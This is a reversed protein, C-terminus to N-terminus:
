AVNYWDYFTEIAEDTTNFSTPSWYARGTRQKFYGKYDEYNQCLNLTEGSILARKVMMIIFSTKDGVYMSGERKEIHKTLFHEFLGNYIFKLISLKRQNTEKIENTRKFPETAMDEFKMFSLSIEVEYLEENEKYKSVLFDIDNESARKTENEISEFINKFITDNNLAM